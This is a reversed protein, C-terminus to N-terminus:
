SKRRRPKRKPPEVPTPPPKTAAPPAVAEVVVKVTIPQPSALVVDQPLEPTLLFSETAKLGGLDIEKTPLISFAALAEPRGRVEVMNPNVEFSKVMYGPAPQGKYHPQVLVDRVESGVALAPRVLVTKPSYTVTSPAPRDGDELLELTRTYAGGPTVQELDLVTRAYKVRKVDAEPGSITITAPETFTSDPLYWYGLNPPLEHSVQVRVPIEKHTRNDVVIRVTLDPWKPEWRIGPHDGAISIQVPYNQEGTQANRLNVRATIDDETVRDWDDPSGVPFIKVPDPPVVIQMKDPLGFVQVPVTYSTQPPKDPFETVQVYLWLAVSLLFSIIVLPIRAITNM